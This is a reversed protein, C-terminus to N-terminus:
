AAVVAARYHTTWSLGKRSLLAFRHNPYDQEEDLLKRNSRNIFHLALCAKARLGNIWHKRSWGFESFRSRRPM